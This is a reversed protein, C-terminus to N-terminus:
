EGEGWNRTRIGFGLRSNVRLTKDSELIFFNRQSPSAPSCRRRRTRRWQFAPVETGRTPLAFQPNSVRSTRCSRQTWALMSLSHTTTTTSSRSSTATPSTRSSSLACTSNLYDAQEVDQELLCFLLLLLLSLFLASFFCSFVQSNVHGGLLAQSWTLIVQFSLRPCMRM